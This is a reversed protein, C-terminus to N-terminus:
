ETRMGRERQRVFDCVGYAVSLSHGTSPPALSARRNAGFRRGCSPDRQPHCPIRNVLSWTSTSSYASRSKIARRLRPRRGIGGSTIPRLRIANCHIDAPPCSDSPPVSSNSGSVRIPVASAAEMRPQVGLCAPRSAASRSPCSTSPRHTNRRRVTTSYASAFPIPQSLLRTDRAQPPATDARAAQRPIQLTLPGPVDAPSSRYWPGVLSM